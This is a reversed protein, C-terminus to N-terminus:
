RHYLWFNTPYASKPRINEKSTVSSTMMLFFHSFYRKHPNKWEFFFLLKIKYWVTFIRGVSQRVKDTANGANGSFKAVRARFM